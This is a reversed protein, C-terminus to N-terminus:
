TSGPEWWSTWWRLGRRACSPSSGPWRAAEGLLDNPWKIEVEAGGAERCAECAAVASPSPGAHPPPRLRRRASAPGLRLARTRPPSHWAGDSGGAGRRRRKRSSSPERPRVRPRSAGRTTTRRAPSRELVVLPPRLGPEDALLGRTAARRADFARMAGRPGPGHRSRGRAGLPHPVRREPLRGRDGRGRAPTGPRLGGSAELVIRGQGARARVPAATDLDMNDLLAGDRGAAIAEELEAPADAGRGHDREAPARPSRARRSPTASGLRRGGPAHGQDDGRRLSGDPPQDGGGAASPTSTSAGSGPRRRAPTSSARSRNGRDGDVAARTATAIGCMRM